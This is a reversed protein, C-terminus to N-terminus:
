ANVQSFIRSGNTLVANCINTLFSFFGNIEKRKLGLYKEQICVGTVEIFNLLENFDIQFAYRFEHIIDINMFSNEEILYLVILLWCYILLDVLHKFVVLCLPRSTLITEKKKLKSEQIQMALSKKIPHIVLRTLEGCKQISM